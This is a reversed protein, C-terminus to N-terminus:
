AATEAFQNRSEDERAERARQMEYMMSYTTNLLDDTKQRLDSIDQKGRSGLSSSMFSRDPHPFNVATDMYNRRWNKLPEVMTRTEPLLPWHFTSAVREAEAM